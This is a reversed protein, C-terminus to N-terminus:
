RENLIDERMRRLENTALEALPPPASKAAPDDIGFARREALQLKDFTDALQKVSSVRGPLALAKQVVARARAEDVPEAGSGALIQALLEQDEALLASRGLEQLLDAAVQRTAAVDRRHGLIVQTNAEAAVLVTDTADKQAQTVTERLLAADTAQKIVERLDKCWGLASAKRSIQAYSVGHQAELERLTYRGTRYDREVAEWDARRKGPVAVGVPKKRAAPTKESAPKKAAPPTAM